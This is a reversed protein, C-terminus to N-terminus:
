LPNFTKDSLPFSHGYVNKFKISVQKYPVGYVKDTTVTPAGQRYMMVKKKRVTDWYCCYGGDIFMFFEDYAKQANDVLTQEDMGDMVSKGPASGFFYLTLTIETQKRVAEDPVYTQTQEDEAYTETYVQADGYLNLGACSKYRLLPFDRELDRAEGRAEFEGTESNRAYKRIYFKPESM